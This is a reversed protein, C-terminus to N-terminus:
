YPHCAMCLESAPMRLLSGHINQHPDHCTICTLKGETLPLQKVRISPIINVAHENQAMRDPHCGQCLETVSKTLLIKEAGEEYSIHCRSCDRKSEPLKFTKRKAADSAEAHGLFLNMQLLLAASAVASLWIITRFGTPKSYAM